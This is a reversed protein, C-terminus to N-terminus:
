PAVCFAEMKPYRELRLSACFCHGADLSCHGLEETASFTGRLASGLAVSLNFLADSAAFFAAAVSMTSARFANVYQRCDPRDISALQTDVNLPLVKANSCFLLPLRLLFTHASILLSRQKVFISSVTLARNLLRLKSSLLFLESDKLIFFFDFKQFCVKPRFWRSFFHFM